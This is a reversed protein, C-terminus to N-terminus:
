RRERAGVADSLDSAAHRLEEAGARWDTPELASVVRSAAEARAVAFWLAAVAAVLLVLVVLVTLV